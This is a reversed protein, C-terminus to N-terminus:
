EKRRAEVELVLVGIEGWELFLLVGEGVVEDEKKKEVERKKYTPTKSRM